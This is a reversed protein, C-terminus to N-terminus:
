NYSCSDFAECMTYTKDPAFILLFIIDDENEMVFFM